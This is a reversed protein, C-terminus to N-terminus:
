TYTPMGAAYTFHVRRVMESYKHVTSLIRYKAWAAPGSYLEFDHHNPNIGPFAIVRWGGYNGFIRLKEDVVEYVLARSDNRYYIADQEKEAFDRALSLTHLTYFTSSWLISITLPM